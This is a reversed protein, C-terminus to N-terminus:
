WDYSSGRGRTIIAISLLIMITLLIIVISQELSIGSGDTASGSVIKVVSINIVKMHVITVYDGSYHIIAIGAPSRGAPNVAFV